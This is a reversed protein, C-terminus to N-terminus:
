AKLFSENDHRMRNYEKITIFDSGEYQHGQKFIAFQNNSGNVVIVFTNNNMGCSATM